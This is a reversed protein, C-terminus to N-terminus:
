SRWLPTLLYGMWGRRKEDPVGLEFPAEDRAPLHFTGFLLDCWPALNGFNAVRRPHKAHHWHHLEPAGLVLRLPGLPLRANSHIYIAWLGRFVMLPAVLQLSFGLAIAPANLALQTLLGDVPHERHAAVWDLHEASHHVRHFRWLLEFRHCARHFWYASLDAMVVIALVQVWPAQARAAARLANPVLHGTALDLQTLMVLSVPGFVFAQGLYFLVDTGIAPRVWAQRRAPWLRELPGFVALLVLLTLATSGLVGTM